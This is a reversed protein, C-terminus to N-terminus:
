LITAVDRSAVEFVHMFKCSCNRRCQDILAFENNRKATSMIDGIREDFTERERIRRWREDVDIRMEIHTRAFIALM